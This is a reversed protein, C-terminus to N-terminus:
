PTKGSDLGHWALFYFGHQVELFFWASWLSYMFYSFLGICPIPVYRKLHALVFNLALVLYPSFQRSSGRPSGFLFIKQQSAMKPQQM